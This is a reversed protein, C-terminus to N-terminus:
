SLSAARLMETLQEVDELANEWAKRTYEANQLCLHLHGALLRLAPLKREWFYDALAERRAAHRSIEKGLQLTERLMRPPLTPFAEGLQALAAHPRAYRGARLLFWEQWFQRLLQRASINSSAALSTLGYLGRKDRGTRLLELGPLHLSSLQLPHRLLTQAVLAVRAPHFAAHCRTREFRCQWCGACSLRPRLVHHGSASPGTEWAHVTGMSLNLVPTGLWAALHMPGTDPTICLVLDRMVEALASLSFRGCLNAEPIGAAMAAAQGLAADDPGGLLVPRLGKHVLAKALAGFFAPDPRKEEESAGVFIGIRNQTADRHLAHQHPLAGGQIHDLLNLDGWHFANHRNNQVIAARYLAWFGDIYTGDGAMHAGFRRETSLKGAIHAADPRHSLNIISHFRIGRMGTHAEPPFFTTAPALPQLESFFHPEAVTWVPHGPYARALWGLLPFSMILDGMRQMQLVLIPETTM